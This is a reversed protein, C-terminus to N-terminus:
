FIGLFSRPLAPLKTKEIGRRFIRVLLKVLVLGAVLLALSFIVRSVTIDTYPIVHEIIGSSIVDDM